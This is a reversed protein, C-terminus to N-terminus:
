QPRAAWLYESEDAGPHSDISFCRALIRVERGCGGVPAATVVENENPHRTIRENFGGVEAALPASMIKPLKRPTRGIVRTHVWGYGFVAGGHARTYGCDDINEARYFSLGTSAYNKRNTGIM